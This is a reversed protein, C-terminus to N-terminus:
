KKIAKVTQKTGDKMNLVVLYMGQKLDGLHLVSSPNEITKVLRGSVELVSISKVLDAKSINLVDAFPNPYVKIENKAKSTESTGLNEKNITITFPGELKDEDGSYHGVNVYYATGTVTPVSVTETSGSGNADVTNVCVLSNCSGSFVGIQPDFSSGSPMTVAIEHTTGDGMFTFWTGDNMPNSACTTLFGGNNTAGAADAQTYNYPFASAVLAGTCADNVPPPPLTGVCIKFSIATDVGGYTFVRVYYTSGATLGTAVASEPDSCLVNVLTGCSGSFVQFYSDVTQSAGLSVIDSLTITHSAATATFKFWVDDDPNGGCPDPALGSDTAGLTHGSTVTGCNMNPNVTLTVASACDDNTPPPPLTGVCINFSQARGAGGYSYVRVYYTEGANLGSVISSDPDSCLVSTLGGCIGSFVQFYTDTSTSGTGVGVINRLSIVHSAATATFKYWVDDDPNGYCPSPALGSDTASLTTGATVTGCNMDPNVTLTTAASCEDNTPPPPLTGVCINFAQADGADGYSYVRIYYTSGVSLGTAVASEPDSCLVSNLTACDGSLVQFYTDTSSTTGAAVINKLSIVHSTATATFKYWVDDDPTGYCPDPTLGSDTASVTTGATVSGCNLDPNVTLNVAAACDDNAPPPPVTKFKIDTCGTSEGGVGVSIVRLYYTTNISLPAVPTFSTATVAQQNVINTGGPTTGISVKYSTAGQPASWTITPSVPVLIANNAPYIVPACAPIASPTLGIFSIVSRYGLSTGFPPTSPDPNQSDSSYAIARDQVANFVSFVEDDDYDPTNEDIALVLNQTNNYAFPAAFTIEVVGNSNSVTGSYVETMQAVPVWDNSSTFNTKATHGLYVVWDSSNDITAAPDLYFKLGTINGAANANIEQKTFIQQTYSYGYYTNVPANGTITSGEGLTIQASLIMSVTLLCLLLIKKM